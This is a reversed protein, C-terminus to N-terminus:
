ADATTLEEDPEPDTAAREPETESEDDVTLLPPRTAVWYRWTLVSVLLAVTFLGAIIVTILTGDSPGDGDDSEDTPELDTAEPLEQGSGDGEVLVGGGPGDGDTATAPDVPPDEQASVVTAPGALLLALSLSLGVVFSTVRRGARQQIVQV